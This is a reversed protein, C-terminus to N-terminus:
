KTSKRLNDLFDSVMDQSPGTVLEANIEEMLKGLYVVSNGNLDTSLISNFSESIQIIHHFHKM